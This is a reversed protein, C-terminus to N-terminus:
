VLLSSTAAEVCFGLSGVIKKRGQQKQKKRDLEPRIDKEM